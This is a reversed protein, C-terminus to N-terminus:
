LTLEVPLERILLLAFIDGEEVLVECTEFLLPIDEDSDDLERGLILIADNVAVAERAEADIISDALEVREIENEDENVRDDVLITLSIENGVILADDASDDSGREDTSAINVSSAVNVARRVVVAVFLSVAVIVLLAVGDDEEVGDTPRTNTVSSTPEGATIKSICKDGAVRSLKSFEPEFKRAAKAM